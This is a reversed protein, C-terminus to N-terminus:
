KQKFDLSNFKNRLLFSKSKAPTKVHVINQQNEIFDLLFTSTLQLSTVTSTLMPVEAYIVLFEEQYERGLYTIKQSVDNLRITLNNIFFKEIFADTEDPHSDPSFVVKSNQKQQMYAEIDDIFFRSTLQLQQKEPVWKVTTTSLYFDHSSVFSMSLLVSLLILIKTKQM